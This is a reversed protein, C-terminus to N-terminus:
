GDATVTAKNLVALLEPLDENRILRNIKVWSTTPDAGTRIDLSPAAHLKIQTEQVNPQLDEVKVDLADALKKLNHPEPLSVGRIYKSIADRQLDAQRALEAQSWGKNVMLNFLREGFQERTLHRRVMTRASFNDDVMADYDVASRGNTFRSRSKM